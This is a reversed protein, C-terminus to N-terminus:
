DAYKKVWRRVWNLASTDDGFEQTNFMMPLHIMNDPEVSIRPALWKPLDDTQWVRGASLSPIGCDRSDQAIHYLMPMMGARVFQPAALMFGTRATDMPSTPAPVVQVADTGSPVHRNALVIYLVVPRFMSLAQALAIAAVGRRTIAHAPVTCQIWQDVTIAVPARDTHTITPGYLHEPEGALWAGVDVMGFQTNHESELAYDELAVNTFQEVYREASQAYKDDGRACGAVADARDGGAWRVMGGDRLRDDYVKAYKSRELEHAFDNISAYTALKIPKKKQYKDPTVIM